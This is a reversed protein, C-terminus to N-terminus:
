DETGASLAANIEAAARALRKVVAARSVGQKRAVDAKSMGDIRNMVFAERRGAPMGRLVENIISLQEQVEIVREPSSENSAEPFYYREVNSSHKEQVNAHRLASITLNKATQRLFGPYNDIPEGQQRRFLKEFARQAIDEPDPPGDGFQRRLYATLAPKHERYLREFDAPGLSRDAPVIENLAERDAEGDSPKSKSGFQQTM